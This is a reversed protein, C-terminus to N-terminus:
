VQIFALAQEVTQGLRQVSDLTIRPIAATPGTWDAYEELSQEVAHWTPEPLHTLNRDRAELRERHLETDSCVVEIFRLQEGHKKALNVWQERAPDVANVADVIITQGNALAADAIAEAVLYAALGTPQDSDIGASLIASEIPDVSLLAYGLRNGIVEAITSKGAGPLGAM